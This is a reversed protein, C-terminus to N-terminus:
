GETTFENIPAGGITPWMYPHSIIWETPRSHVAACDRARDEATYANPVFSTSLHAGHM